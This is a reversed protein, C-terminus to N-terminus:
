LGLKGLLGLGCRVDVVWRDGGRDRQAVVLWLWLVEVLVVVVVVVVVLGNERAVRGEVL